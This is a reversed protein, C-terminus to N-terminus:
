ENMLRYKAPLLERVARLCERLRGRARSLRSKVTGLPLGTIESIEQYRYGEVDSLVAVIRQEDPLALICDQIAQLLENRQAQQEPPDPEHHLSQESAPQLEHLADLSSVPQRKRRRLEDYCANTVIRLLWPKFRTGKFQRIKRYAAIFADQTVDAATDAEGVIRYAVSYAMNQYTLVLQNFAEVDGRQAAKILSSEQM